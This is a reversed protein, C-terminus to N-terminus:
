GYINSLDDNAVEQLLLIDIDQGLLINTLMKIKVPSSIANINLTAIKFTFKKYINNQSALTM